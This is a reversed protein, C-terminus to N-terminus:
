RSRDTAIGDMIVDVVRRVFTDSLPQHGLLLRRHAAGFLMDLVVDLVVDTGTDAPIEGREIGRDLLARHRVRLPQMVRERWAAALQPDGQAEAVLGALM